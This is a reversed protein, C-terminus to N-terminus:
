LLTYTIELRLSKRYDRENWGYIGARYVTGPSNSPVLVMELNEVNDVLISQVQVKITFSYTMTQEDYQGGFNTADLLNDYVRAYSGDEQVLFLSLLPPFYKAQQMTYATDAMTLILRAENIAVPMSDMWHKLQPFRIRPVVGAMSQIFLLSDNDSGDKLYAELPYGARDHRFMNVRGNDGNILSYSQSLSVDSDNSYYFYLGNGPDDFNISVISGEDAPDDTTLYLGYMLEQLYSSNALISDEAYLFKDLFVPDTIFIKALTDDSAIQVSGLAPQRYKGTMDMNSYYTSDYRLLENFEYLYLMMPLQGEGYRVEWSVFYIVSDPVPNLGFGRSTSSKSITTLIEARSKGFFPDTISGLLYNEKYGARISDPHMNAGYVLETSDFAVTFDDGSPLLERGILDPENDCSGLLVFSLLTALLYWTPRFETRM